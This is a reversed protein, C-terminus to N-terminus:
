EHHLAASNTPSWKEPRWNQMLNQFAQCMDQPHKCPQWSDLALLSGLPSQKLPCVQQIKGVLSCTCYEMMFQLKSLENLKQSASTLALKAGNDAGIKREPLHIDANSINVAHLNAIRYSTHNEQLVKPKIFLEMHSIFLSTLDSALYVVFPEDAQYGELLPKLIWPSLCSFNRCERSWLKKVTFLICLISYWVTTRLGSINLHYLM